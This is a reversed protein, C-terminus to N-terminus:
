PMDGLALPYKSCSTAVAASAVELEAGGGVRRGGEVRLFHGNDVYETARARALAGLGGMKDLVIAEYM